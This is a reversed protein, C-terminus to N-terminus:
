QREFQDRLLVGGGADYEYILFRDSLDTITYAAGVDGVTLTKSDLTYAEFAGTSDPLNVTQRNGDTFYTIVTTTDPHFYTYTQLSGNEFSSRMQWKWSGLLLSEDITTIEEKECGVLALCLTLLIALQKM